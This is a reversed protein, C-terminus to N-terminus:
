RPRSRLDPEDTVFSRRTSTACRPTSRPAPQEPEDVMRRMEDGVVHSAVLIGGPAAWTSRTARAHRRQRRLARPRRDARPRRRQGAQRRRHRRDARARRAPRQPMDLATRGPINYLLIPKDTARAVAEYHRWSGAATPSTTTRAHGLTADAGLATARETLQVAHRTDNSGTGAIITTGTPREQSPSSSSAAPARRRDADRGRRDHRLRRVGDSGHEALHHMLAVFAEEDVSGDDDFPTVIATM